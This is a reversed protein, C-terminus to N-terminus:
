ANEEICEQNTFKISPLLLLREQVKEILLKPQIPRNLYCELTLLLGDRADSFPYSLLDLYNQTYFKDQPIMPMFAHSKFFASEFSASSLLSISFDALFWTFLSSYCIRVDMKILASWKISKKHSPHPVYIIILKKNLKESSDIVLKILQCELQFSESEEGGGDSPYNGYFVLVLNKGTIYPFARRCSTLFLNIDLNFGECYPLLFQNFYCNVPFFKGHPVNKLVGYLPLRPIQPIFFHKALANCQFKRALSFLSSFYEETLVSGIGHMIEYIELCEPSQLLGVRLLETLRSHCTLFVSTIKNSKKIIRLYCHGAMLLFSNRLAGKASFKKFSFVGIFISSFLVRMQSFPFFICLFFICFILFFGDVIYIKEKINNKKFRWLKSCFLPDFLFIPYDGDIKTLFNNECKDFSSRMVFKLTERLSVGGKLPLRNSASSIFLAEEKQYLFINIAQRFYAPFLSFFIYIFKFIVFVSSMKKRLDVVNQKKIRIISLILSLRKYYNLHKSYMDIRTADYLHISLIFFNFVKKLLMNGVRENM